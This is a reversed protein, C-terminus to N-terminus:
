LLQSLPRFRERDPTEHHGSVIAGIFNIQKCAFRCKSLKLGMNAKRFCEFVRRLSEIHGKLGEQKNWIAVDDVYFKCCDGLVPALVKELTWGLCQASISLGMPMRKYSYSKNKVRFSLIKSSAEDMVLQFFGSRLDCTTIMDVGKFSALM